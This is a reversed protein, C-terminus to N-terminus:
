PTGWEQESEPPACAWFVRQLTTGDIQRGAAMALGFRLLTEYLHITEVLGDTLVVRYVQGAPGEIGTRLVTRSPTLLAPLDRLVQMLADDNPLAAAGCRLLIQM